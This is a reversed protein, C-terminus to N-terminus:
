IIKNIKETSIIYPILLYIFIFIRAFMGIDYFSYGISYLLISFVSTVMDFIFRKLSNGSKEYKSKNLYIFIFMMVLLFSLAYKIGFFENLGQSLIPIIILFLITINNLAYIRIQNKKEKGIRRDDIDNRLMEDYIFDEIEKKSVNNYTSTMEIKGSKLLIGYSAQEFVIMFLLLFLIHREMDIVKYVYSYVYFLVFILLLVYNLCLLLHNGKKLRLLSAYRNLIILQFFVYIWVCWSWLASIGSFSSIDRHLNIVLFIGCNLALFISTRFLIKLNM